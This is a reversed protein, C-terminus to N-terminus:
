QCAETEEWVEFLQALAKAKIRATPEYLGTKGIETDILIATIRDELDLSSRLEVVREQKKKVEEETMTYLMKKEV